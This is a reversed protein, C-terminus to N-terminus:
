RAAVSRARQVTRESVGAKKAVERDTLKPNRKIAVSM